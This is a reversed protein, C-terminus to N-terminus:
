IEKKILKVQEIFDRVEETESNENFLERIM